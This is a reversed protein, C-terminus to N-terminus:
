DVFEEMELLRGRRPPAGPPSLTTPETGVRFVEVMFDDSGPPALLGTDPDIKDFVIEEPISFPEEPLKQLATRMYDVWIPLAARAGTEKNGIPKLTDFGVWVGTVINPAFGMFWADTFDSSTGTKGALPRGLVKAGRGTGHQIVDEMLSTILYSTQPSIVQTGEPYHTELVAGSADSISQISLPEVRVGQNAFVGIASTLEMLSVGSSGLASSLNRAIPSKIGVSQALDLVKDIGIKQALRVTAVNRSFTLAERLTIPGYFKKDYNEPQWPKDWGPIDYSIPSDDFLTAATLGQDLAAAYVIPKFASGPQRRAQIARNFESRRFDYGGVMAKIYGTSPDISVLAGEV